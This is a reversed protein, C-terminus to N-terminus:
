FTHRWEIRQHFGLRVFHGGIDKLYIHRGGVFPLKGIYPLFHEYGVTYVLQRDPYVQRIFSVALGIRGLGDRHFVGENWVGRRDTSGIFGAQATLTWPSNKWRYEGGVRVEVELVKHRTWIECNTVWPECDIEWGLYGGGAAKGIAVSLQGQWWLWLSKSDFRRQRSVRFTIGRAWMVRGQRPTHHDTYFYGLSHDPLLISFEIRRSSLYKRSHTDLRVVLGYRNILRGGLRLGFLSEDKVSTNVAKTLTHSTTMWHGSVGLKKYSAFFDGGFLGRHLQRRFPPAGGGHFLYDMLLNTAVYGESIPIGAGIRLPLQASYSWSLFPFLPWHNQGLSLNLTSHKLSIDAPNSYNDLRNGVLGVGSAFDIQSPVLLRTSILEDREFSKNYASAPAHIGWFMTAYSLLACIICYRM